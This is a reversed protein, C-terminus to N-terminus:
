RPEDGVPRVRLCGLRRRRPAGREMVSTPSPPASACTIGCCRTTVTMSGAPPWSRTTRGATSPPWPASSSRTSRPAFIEELVELRRRRLEDTTMSGGGSSSWTTSRHGDRAGAATSPLGERWPTLDLKPYRRATAVLLLENGLGDSPRIVYRKRGSSGMWCSGVRRAEGQGGPM